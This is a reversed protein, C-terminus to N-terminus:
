RSFIELHAYPLLCSSEWIWFKILFSLLYNKEIGFHIDWNAIFPSKHCVLFFIVFHRLSGCFKLLCCHGWFSTFSSCWIALYMGRPFFHIILKNLLVGLDPTNCPLLFCCGHKSVLTELNWSLCMLSFFTNLVLKGIKKWELGLHYSNYDSVLLVSDLTNKYLWFLVFQEKEERFRYGTLCVPSMVLAKSGAFSCLHEGQKEQRRERGAVRGLSCSICCATRQLHIPWFSSFKCQFKGTRNIM